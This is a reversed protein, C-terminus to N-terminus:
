VKELLESVSNKKSRGAEPSKLCEKTQSRWDRGRNGHPRRRETEEETEQSSVQSLNSM